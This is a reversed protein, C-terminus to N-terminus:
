EHRNKYYTKYFIGSMSSRSKITTFKINNKVISKPM